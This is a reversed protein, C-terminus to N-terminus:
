GPGARWAKRGTDCRGVQEGGLTKRVVGRLRFTGAAGSRGFRGRLRWTYDEEVETGDSRTFSRRFSGTAGFRGRKGVRLGHAVVDLANGLASPCSVTATMGARRVLRGRGAVDMLFPQGQATLGHHEGPQRRTAGRGADRSPVRAVWPILGTDCRSVVEGGDNPDRYVTRVRITGSALPRRVSRIELEIRGQARLGGIGPVGPDVEDTFQTTGKYRGRESLPGRSIFVSETLTDGFRPACETVLTARARFREGGPKVRLSVFQMFDRVAGGGYLGARAGGAQGAAGTPFAFPVLLAALAFFLLKRM